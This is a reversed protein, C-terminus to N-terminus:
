REVEMYYKNLVAQYIDPMNDGTFVIWRNLPRSESNSVNHAKRFDFLIIRIVDDEIQEYANQIMAEQYLIYIEEGNYEFLLRSYLTNDLLSPAIISVTEVKETWKWVTITRGTDVYENEGAKLIVSVDFPEFVLMVFEIYTAEEASPDALYLENRNM